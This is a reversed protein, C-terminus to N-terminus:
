SLRKSLFLLHILSWILGILGVLLYFGYSLSLSRLLNKESNDYALFESHQKLQSTIYVIYLLYIIGSIITSVIMIIPNVGRRGFGFSLSIILSGIIWAIVAFFLFRGLKISAQRSMAKGIAAMAIFMLGGIAFMSVVDILRYRDNVFEALKVGFFVLAFGIANALIYFGTAFVMFGFGISSLRPRMFWGMINAVLILIPGLTLLVNTLNRVQQSIPYLNYLLEFLGYAIAFILSFCIGTILFSRTMLRTQSQNFIYKGEPGYVETNSGYNVRRPDYQVSGHPNYDYSRNYSDNSNM